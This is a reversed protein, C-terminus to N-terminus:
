PDPLEGTGNSLVGRDVRLDLPDGTLPESELRRRRRRLDQLTVAVSREESGKRENRRGEFAECRLNAM